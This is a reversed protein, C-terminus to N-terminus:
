NKLSKQYFVAKDFALTEFKTKLGMISETGGMMLYRNPALSQYFKDLLRLKTAESFYILVNRCLILDFRGLLLFSHMLNFPRFEVIEKIQENLAWGEEREEFYAHLRSSSLGRKISFADYIAGKATQLVTDSLDTGLIRFRPWLATKGKAKLLEYIQIALSYPEQGTSCAASWITISQRGTELERIFEPLIRHKLTEWCSQDRFWLTENTTMLDVFYKFDERNVVLRQYLESFNNFERQKAFGRLRTEVLYKQDPKIIIGSDTALLESIKEFEHNELSAKM